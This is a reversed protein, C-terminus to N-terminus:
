SSEDFSQVFSQAADIAVALERILADVDDEVRVLEGRLSQMAQANLNHKLYLVQDRFAGLVPEIRSEAQWMAEILDEYRRQTAILRRESTARFGPDTYQDLEESWEEFLASSVSEVSEIRKRVKEAEGEARRFAKDLIAYQEQLEGGEVGLVETFTDLASKFEEGAEVQADQAAEVRDVLIDRKHFGFREAVDYYTKECATLFLVSALVVLLQKCVIDVGQPGIGALM